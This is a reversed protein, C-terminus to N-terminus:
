ESVMTQKICDGEVAAWHVSYAPRVCARSVTGTYGAPCQLTANEHVKTTPWDANLAVGNASKAGAEKHCGQFCSASFNACRWEGGATCNCPIVGCYSQSAYRSCQMQGSQGIPTEYLLVTSTLKTIRPCYTQQMSLFLFAFSFLLSPSFVPTQSLFCNPIVCLFGDLFGCLFGFLFACLFGFLICPSFM